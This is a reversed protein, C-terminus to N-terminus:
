LVTACTKRGTTMGVVVSAFDRRAFCRSAFSSPQANDRRTAPVRSLSESVVGVRIQVECDGFFPVGVAPPELPIFCFSRRAARVKPSAATLMNVNGITPADDLVFMRLLVFALVLLLPMAVALTPVVAFIPVFVFTPVFALM